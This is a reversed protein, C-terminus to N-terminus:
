KPLPKTARETKGHTALSVSPAVNEKLKRVRSMYVPAGMSNTAAWHRVEDNTGTILPVLSEKATASFNAQLASVFRENETPNGKNVANNLRMYAGVLRGSKGADLGGAWLAVRNLLSPDKVIQQVTFNQFETPNASKAAAVIEEAASLAEPLKRKQFDDGAADAAKNLDGESLKKGGGGGGVFKPPVFRQSESQSVKGMSRKTMEGLEGALEKKIEALRQYGMARGQDDPLRALHAEGIKVAAMLRQARMESRRTKADETMGVFGEIDREGSQARQVGERHEGEAEAIDADILSSVIQAGQQGGFVAIMAMVLRSGFGHNVKYEADQWMGQVKERMRGLAQETEESRYAEERQGQSQVKAVQGAVQGTVGRAAKRGQLEAQLAQMNANAAEGRLRLELPSPPAAGEVSRGRQHGMWGGPVMHGGSPRASRRVTAMRRDGVDALSDKQEVSLMSRPVTRVNAASGDKSKAVVVAPAAKGLIPPKKVPALGEDEAVKTARAVAFADDILGM